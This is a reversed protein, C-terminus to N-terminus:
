RDQGGLREFDAPRKAKMVAATVLGAVFAAGLVALLISNSDSEGAVLEFNALAFTVLATMAVASITPAVLTAWAGEGTDKGNRRFWAVVAVSVLAMLIFVGANGLGALQAYAMSPDSGAVAFLGVGVLVLASIAMSARYPSRHRGHVASLATPLAGDASLNFLYRTSANHISLISALVATIVLTTAVNSFWVGVYRDAAIGFMGAADGTAVNQADSGFATVMVWVTVTYLIGIFLVALYTARPITRNPDRVEDRYLATAEFGIFVLMAFLLGVWVEGGAFDFVNFPQLHLGSEGGQGVIAVNFIMVITVEVFMVWMLVKASVDVNFYGLIGVIVWFALAGLWWPIVPGGWKAILDTVTLGAFCYVGMGIVSYSLTALFAAALGVHRGLGESIYAYFAGPRPMHKTMAMYGVSFILLVATVLVFAVPATNGSAMITLSFYGALCTLPSSFALVSLVLQTTSMQGSLRSASGDGSVPTQTTSPSEM